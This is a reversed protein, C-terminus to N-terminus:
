HTYYYICYMIIIISYLLTHLSNEEVTNVPSYDTILKDESEM